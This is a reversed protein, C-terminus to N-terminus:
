PCLSADKGHRGSGGVMLEPGTYNLVQYYPSLKDPFVFAPNYRPPRKSETIGREMKIHRLDQMM